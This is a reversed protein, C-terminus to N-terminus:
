QSIVPRVEDTVTLMAAEVGFQEWSGTRGDIATAEITYSVTGSPYDEPVEWGVAWFADVPTDRPHPGFNLDLTQDGMVVQVSELATDDMPEGTVPDFVKVRWVVEENHAYRSVQVCTKLPKEEETLNTPGLVTDADIFLAEVAPAATAQSPAASAPQNDTPAAATTQQGPAQACAVLAGAILVTVLAPAVGRRPIPISTM